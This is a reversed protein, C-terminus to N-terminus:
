GVNFLGANVLNNAQAVDGVYPRMGALTQVDDAVQVARDDLAIVFQIQQALKFRVLPARRGNPGPHAPRPLLKAGVLKVYM